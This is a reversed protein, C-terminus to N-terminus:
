EPSAPIQAIAMATAGVSGRLEPSQVKAKGGGGKVRKEHGRFEVELVGYDEGDTDSREGEADEGPSVGAAKGFVGESGLECERIEIERGGEGVVELGLLGEEVVLHLVLAAEGHLIEVDGLDDGGGALLFDLLLAFFDGREIGAIGDVGDGVQSGCDDDRCVEAGLRDGFALDREGDLELGFGAGIADRAENGAGPKVEVVVCAFEVAGEGAAWFDEFLL